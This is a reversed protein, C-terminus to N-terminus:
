QARRQEEELNLVFSDTLEGDEGIRPLLDEIKRKPDSLAPDGRKAKELYSQNLKERERAVERDIARETAEKGLLTDLGVGVGHLLLGVLLLVMGIIPINYGVLFAPLSEGETMLFQAVAIVPPWAAFLLLTLFFTGFAHNFFSLRNQFREEVAQRIRKYDKSDIREQWAEGYRAVLSRHLARRRADLRRGSQYFVGLAHAILGGMWPLLLMLALPLGRLADGFAPDTFAVPLDPDNAAAESLGTIISETIPVELLRLVIIAIVFVVTHAVLGVRQQIREGIRRRISEEDTGWDRSIVKVTRARRKKEEHDANPITASLRPSAEPGFRIQVGKETNEMHVNERVTETIKHWTESRGVEDAIEQVREAMQRFFENFRQEGPLPASRQIPAPISQYNGGGPTYEPVKAHAATAARSEDLHQLGSARVADAFASMLANPTDYRAAPNKELAKLLVAEVESPIEPNLQSPLPPAAYIHKHVIAYTTEGAFPVRGTVLEYLIVGFSYVDTRSDLGDLGQAQEPSIYHPTGLMMDASMTSEGLQTIRALGFDTLYPQGAEDLLINSPKIDRHLVGQRHAYTLADAIAPMIQLIRDLSLPGDRLLDKLTRGTILKMVLYPQGNIDDYDYVPVINPHELRAVIRAEREFRARFNPDQLFAQHMLKVAVQRELRPQLAKYVTAMGGVGIQELLQYQGLSSESHPQAM